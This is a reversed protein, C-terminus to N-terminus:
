VILFKTSEICWKVLYMGYRACVAAAIRGIRCFCVSFNLVRSQFDVYSMVKLLILFYTVSIVCFQCM